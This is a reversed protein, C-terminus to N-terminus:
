TSTIPFHERRGRAAVGVSYCPETVLLAMGLWPADVALLKRRQLRHELRRLRGVLLRRLRRM